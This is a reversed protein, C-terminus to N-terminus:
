ADSRYGCSPFEIIIEQVIRDLAKNTIASYTQSVSLEYDKLRRNVTSMSIGLMHSIQRISSTTVFFCKWSSSRYKLLLDVETVLISNRLYIAKTFTM